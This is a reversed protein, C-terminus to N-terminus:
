RLAVAQLGVNGCDYSFTAETTWSILLQAGKPARFRLTFEASRSTHPDEMRLTTTPGGVSLRAELRGRAMWLGAYLRVTRLEGSGAVALKFGNGIGCTYVGNATAGVTRVSGGDRWGFLEQNGDWGGRTGAGGADVIEGSGNQKRVTSGGGRLGWHVWDRPGAATLDVEAPIEGQSVTLVPPGPAALSTASPSPSGTPRQRPRLGPVAPGTDTRNAEAAPFGSPRVAEATVGGPPAPEPDSRNGVYGVLAALCALLALGAITWRRGPRAAPGAPTRGPRRISTLWRRLVERGESGVTSRHRRPRAARHAAGRGSSSADAQPVDEEAM